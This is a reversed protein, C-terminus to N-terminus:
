FEMWPRLNNFGHPLIVEDPSTQPLLFVSSVDKLGSKKVSGLM